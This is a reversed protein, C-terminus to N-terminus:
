GNARDGEEIDITPPEGLLMQQMAEIESAMLRMLNAAQGAVASQSELHDAYHRAKITLKSKM